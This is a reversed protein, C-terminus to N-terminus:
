HPQIYKVTASNTEGARFGLVHITSAKLLLSVQIGWGWRKIECFRHFKFCVARYLTSPPKINIRATYIQGNASNTEGARIRTSSNTSAKFAPFSTHCLGRRKIACFRHFKLDCPRSLTSPPKINHPRIYQGNARYLTSAQAM